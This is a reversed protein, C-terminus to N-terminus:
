NMSKKYKPEQQWKDIEAMSKSLNKGVMNNLKQVQLNYNAEPEALSFNVAKKKLKGEALMQDIETSNKSAKRPSNQLPNIGRITELQLQRADKNLNRLFSEPKDISTVM